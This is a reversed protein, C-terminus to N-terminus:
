DEFKECWAIIQEKACFNCGQFGYDLWEVSFCDEKHCDDKPFWCATYINNLRDKVLIKRHIDGKPLDDPNKRLDHWQPLYAKLEANEIELDAIRKQYPKFFNDTIICLKIIDGPKGIGLIESVETIFASYKEKKEEETM